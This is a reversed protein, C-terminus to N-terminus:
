GNRVTDPAAQGTRRWLPALPKALLAPLGPRVLLWDRIAAGQEAGIVRKYGGDGAGWDVIRTGREVARALNRWYLLKGPSHKAYAPDYSNAIAHVTGGTEIDFSFAAPRGDVRLLAAHFMAALVPDRAAIRWFEGRGGAIFKAGSGDTERGVWSDREVADLLDFGAPWDAAGLFSWDLSGHAALHKEHFRNKRLTSGRPWPGAATQGAIDLVWGDALYRDIATWGRARAAALLPAVNADDDYVPGIRVVNATGALADLAADFAAPSADEAAPFSRFPWYNGAVMAARAFGPGRAVLPMALVPRGGEEVIVTRAAGGEVQRAADFWARRLFRYPEAAGAAVADIAEPLGATVSAPPRAFVSAPLPKTM